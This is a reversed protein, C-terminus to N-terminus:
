ASRSIRLSLRVLSCQARAAGLLGLEGCIYLYFDADKLKAQCRSSCDARVENASQASTEKAEADFGNKHLSRGYTGVINFNHIKGSISLHGKRETLISSAMRDM